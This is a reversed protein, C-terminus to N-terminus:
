VSPSCSSPLGAEERSAATHVARGWWSPGFDSVMLLILRRDKGEEKGGKRM